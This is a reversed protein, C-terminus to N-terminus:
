SCPHSLRKLFEQFSQSTDASPILKFFGHWSKDQLWLMGPCSGCLKTVVTHFNMCHHHSWHLVDLVYHNSDNTRWEMFVMFCDAFCTSTCIARDASCLICVLGQMMHIDGAETDRKFTSHKPCSPLTEMDRVPNSWSQCTGARLFGLEGSICTQWGWDIFRWRFAQRPQSTIKVKFCFCLALETCSPFSSIACYVATKPFWARTPKTQEFCEWCSSFLHFIMREQAPSLINKIGFFHSSVSIQGYPHCNMKVASTQLGWTSAASVMFTSTSLVCSLLLVSSLIVAWPCRISVVELTLACLQVVSPVSFDSTSELGKYFVWIESSQM